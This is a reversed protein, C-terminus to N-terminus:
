EGRFVISCGLAKTEEIGPRKGAVVADVADRLYPHKVNAPDRADDDITGHYVLRGAADFLFVEPTHTAGFARGVGSTTDMAYPFMYDRERAQEKMAPLDDAPYVKPDNSNVAIVGVGEAVAANGIAVMREQWAKVWPCHNCSFIVLTGRKGAVQALSLDRGDVNRLKVDTAPMADGIALASSQMSALAAGVGFAAVVLPRVNV